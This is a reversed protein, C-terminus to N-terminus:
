TGRKFKNRDNKLEEEIKKRKNEFDILKQKYELYSQSHISRFVIFIVSITLLISIIILIIIFTNM